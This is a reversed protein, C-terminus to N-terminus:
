VSVENYPFLDDLKFATGVRRRVQPPREGSSLPYEKPLKGTIEQFVCVVLERLYKCCMSSLTAASLMSRLLPLETFHIHNNLFAHIHRTLHLVLASSTNYLIIEWRREWAFRRWNKQKRPCFIKSRRGKKGWILSNRKRRNKVWKLTQLVQSFLIRVIGAFM